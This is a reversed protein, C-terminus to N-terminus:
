FGIGLAWNFVRGAGRRGGVPQGLGAQLKLGIIELQIEPGIRLTGIEARGRDGWGRSFAVRAAMGLVPPYPGDAFFRARAYGIGVRAGDRALTVQASPGSLGMTDSM